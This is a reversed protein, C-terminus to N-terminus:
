AALARFLGRIRDWLGIQPAVHAPDNPDFTPPLSRVAGSGFFTNKPENDASVYNLLVPTM